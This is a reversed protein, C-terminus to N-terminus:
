KTGAVTAAAAAAAATAAAGAAATASAYVNTPPDGAVLFQGRRQPAPSPHLHPACLDLTALPKPTAPTTSPCVLHLLFWSPTDSDESLQSISFLVAAFATYGLHLM